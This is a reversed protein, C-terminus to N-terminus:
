LFTKDNVSEYEIYGFQSSPKIPKIGLANFVEQIKELM